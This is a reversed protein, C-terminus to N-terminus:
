KMMVMEVKRKKIYADILSKVVEKDKEDMGSVEDFLRLLDKDQPQNPRSDQMELLLYDVSVNFIKAIKILAEANPMVQGTEYKGVHRGHIGVRKGFEDQSLKHQRRLERLKDGFAM